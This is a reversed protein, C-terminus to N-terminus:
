SHVPRFKYHLIVWILLCWMGQNKLQFTKNTFVMLWPLKFFFFVALCTVKKTTHQGHLNQQFVRKSVQRTTKQDSDNQLSSFSVVFGNVPQVTRLRRIWICFILKHLEPMCLFCFKSIDFNKSERIGEKKAKSAENKERKSPM